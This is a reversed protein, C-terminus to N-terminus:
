CCSCPVPDKEPFTVSLPFPEADLAPSGNLVEIHADIKAVGEPQRQVAVWQPLIASRYNRGRNRGAALELVEGPNHPDLTGGTARLERTFRLPAPHYSEYAICVKAEGPPAPAEGPGHTQLFLALKVHHNDSHWCDVTDRSCRSLVRAAPEEPEAHLIKWIRGPM